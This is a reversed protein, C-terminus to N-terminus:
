QHQSEPLLVQKLALGAPRPQRHSPVCYSQLSKHGLNKLDSTSELPMLHSADGRPGGSKVCATELNSNFMPTFGDSYSHRPNTRWNSLDFTHALTWIFLLLDTNTTSSVSLCCQSAFLWDERLCGCEESDLSRQRPKTPEDGDRYIVAHQAFSCM